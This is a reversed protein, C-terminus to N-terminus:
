DVLEIGLSELLNLAEYRSFKARKVNNELVDIVYDTSDTFNVGQLNSRMFLAHRFSSYTMSSDTYDGERFDVDHLKCEDFNLEHLTLGFFSSDNLICRTFSLEFDVHYVAWNAKTWDIGVLKSDKFKLEYLKSGLFSVLSLNCDVFDCNIFKCNKFTSESLDCSTFQCDEFEINSYCSSSMDLNNFAEDLYEENNTIEKM